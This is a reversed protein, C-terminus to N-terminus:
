NAYKWIYGYADPIMGFCCAVVKDRGTVGISSVADRARAHIAILNGQKDYQAIPKKIIKSNAFEVKKQLEEETIDSYAFIYGKSHKRDGKCVACILGSKINYKASAIAISEVRDILEGQLTYVFIEKEGYSQRQYPKVDYYGETDCQANAIDKYRWIYGMASNRKKNCCDSIHATNDRNSIETISPYERIFNGRLDYQLVAKQFAPRPRFLDYPEIDSYDGCDYRWQYGMCLSNESVIARSLNGHGLERSAERASPYTKIYHGNLDYQNVPRSLAPHNIHKLRSKEKMEEPLKKGYWYAKEGSNSASIKDKTSQAMEYGKISEGGHSNNYGNNYSDCEIILRKELAVAMERSLGTEVVVHEFNDWGDRQIAKWFHKNGKYRYGKHGWREEPSRMTIGIYYKGNKPNYHYYVCYKRGSSM